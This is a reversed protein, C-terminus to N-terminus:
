VPTLSHSISTINKKKKKELLLRCVLHEPTEHARLHTYSVPILASYPPLAGLIFTVMLRHCETANHVHFRSSSTHPMQWIGKSPAAGPYLYGPSLQGTTQPWHLCAKWRGHMLLHSWFLLEQGIQLRCHSNAAAGDYGVPTVDTQPTVLHRFQDSPSCAEM